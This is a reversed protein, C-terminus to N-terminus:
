FAHLRVSFRETFQSLRWRKRWAVRGIAKLAMFYNTQHCIPVEHAQSFRRQDADMGVALSKIQPSLHCIFTCNSESAFSILTCFPVFQLSEGLINETGQFGQRTRGEAQM